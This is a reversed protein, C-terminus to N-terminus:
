EPLRFLKCSNKWLQDALEEIDKGLMEAMFKVTEITNAPMNRQGRYVSPPMFPSESEVVIRDLPLALVTDHLNRANRYTLNGAFSFYLPLKLAEKAYIDDESYCHLVGGEKPIREKLIDLLDKGAERNHIIVPFGAKSAIDLQAIFLEIQSRKDGYKKCYDLGIEGVAVVNPLKLSEEITKQWDKGPSTVESPSVGVAHYVAPSFRLTEYVKSFDHLSNCISVIRMVSGQRAEQVVRLQEIPDSYILGVHAHTDFIQM